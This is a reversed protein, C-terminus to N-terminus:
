YENQDYGYKLINEFTNEYHFREKDILISFVLCLNWHQNNLNILTELDDTIQIHIHDIVLQNIDFAYGDSKIFTIQPQTADVQISQIISSKTKDFSDINKTSINNMLLNISQIGNFNCTYPMNIQSNYPSIASPSSGQQAGKDFGMVYFITSSPKITFNESTNYITFKNNINNFTIDFNSSFFSISKKFQNMFTKVNYNGFPIDVNFDVGSNSFEESYVFRNNTENINYISNPSTFQVVSCTMQLCNPPKVIPEEFKFIMDSNFSGNNYTSANRSDLVVYFSETITTLRNDSDSLRQM